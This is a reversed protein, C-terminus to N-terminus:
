RGELPREGQDLESALRYRYFLDRARAKRDRTYRFPLGGTQRAPLWDIAFIQNGSPWVISGHIVGSVTDVAHVGCVARDPDVGPAYRRYRPIVHSTGVFATRGVLALGRTWGPLRAAVTLRGSECPGFTGYGSDDVWLQSERLRASHPRTLGRVVPERTAGSFIVGRRDVPYDIHGPRRRSPEASSASYFSSSPSAGAAISNLQLFNKDFMPGDPGDIARPWWVREYRGHGDLRAVANQGVVNAHLHDGILALDHIYLSGPYFHSGLPMLVNGDANSPGLSFVQNPNRTSAVHVSHRTRDVAIGSPHPLRLYSIAPRGAEVGLGLVLHETERSVILTVGEEELTEWWRGRAQFKLLAPDVDSAAHWQSVVQSPDRWARAHQDFGRM